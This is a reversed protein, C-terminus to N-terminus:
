KVTWSDYKVKADFKLEQSIFKPSFFDAYLIVIYLELTELTFYFSSTVM